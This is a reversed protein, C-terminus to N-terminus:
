YLICKKGIGAVFADYTLKTKSYNGDRDLAIGRGVGSVIQGVGIENLRKELKMLLTPASGPETSRGDFIIHLYVKELGNEKAMRLLALPYDISGHSSKESLLGILHLSKGHQKAHNIAGNLIDNTFFSGDVMAQDLRVDDQVVIRGAGINMHGAESNGAKGAKLGVEEGAAKLQSCPYHKFLDDWVPTEALYIPNSNDNRGIGWGDLILLLVRRKGKWHYGPVLTSGTMSTPQEIGLAALVTPALDALKGDRVCTTSLWNPDVMIFPVLNTTHAVHPTGDKQIMEELNGHDATIIVVYDNAKAYDIVQGMWGDVITACQIKADNNSTHGIVDGNAFNAVILDYEQEIGKLVQRSVQSLSMEPVQDFPTGRPSAIRVQEEGNFPQNNGGNFFFTIHSFKESETTHLQRLGSRSVIEGLTDHIKEPAFAIPLDIFKEHYLTLIVFKLGPLVPRSFGTFGDDTFAETLQIEREGRRCCFVVADGESIRGIPFGKEGFLVLPELTYDTQGETYLEMIGKSLEAAGRTNNWSSTKM